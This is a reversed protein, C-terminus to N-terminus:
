ASTRRCGPSSGSCRSPSVDRLARGGIRVEGATPAHLGVLMQALTTKGSGTPGVVAVREGPEVRFSVGRLAETAAGPYSFSADVFEVSGDLEAHEDGFVSSLRARDSGGTLAALAERDDEVRELMEGLAHVSAALAARTAALADAHDTFLRGRGPGTVWDIFPGFGAPADVSAHTVARFDDVLHVVVRGIADAARERLHTRLQQPVRGDPDIMPHRLMAASEPGALARAVADVLEVLGATPGLARLADIVATQEANSLSRPAPASLLDAAVTTATARESEDAASLVNERMREVRDITAVPSM